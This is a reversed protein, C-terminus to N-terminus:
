SNNLFQDLPKTKGASIDARVRKLVSDLRGGAQSDREIEHDWADGSELEYDALWNLFEDLEQPPLSRVEEALRQVVATM